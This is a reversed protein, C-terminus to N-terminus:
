NKNFREPHRNMLERKAAMKDTPSAGFFSTDKIDQILQQDTRSSARETSQQIQKQKKIAEESLHTAVNKGVKFAKDWFGVFSGGM